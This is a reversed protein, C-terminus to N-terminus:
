CSKAQDAPDPDCSDGDEKGTPDCNRGTSVWSGDQCQFCEHGQCVYSGNPYTRDGYNCSGEPTATSSCDDPSPPQTM